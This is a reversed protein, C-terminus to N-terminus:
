NYAFFGTAAAPKQALELVKCSFNGLFSYGEKEATGRPV